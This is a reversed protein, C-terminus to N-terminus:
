ADWKGLTGYFLYKSENLLGILQTRGDSNLHTTNADVQGLEAKAYISDFYKVMIETAERTPVPETTHMEVERMECSTSYTQGLPGIPEKMPVHVGDWQIAQCKSNDMLGPHVTMSHGIITGYGIGWEYENNDVHFLHSIINSISFERM